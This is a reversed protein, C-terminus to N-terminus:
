DLHFVVSVRDLRVGLQVEPKSLEVTINSVFPFSQKISRATKVALTEILRTPTDFVERCIGIIEEYNVTKPLNDGEAAPIIDLDFFINLIFKQNLQQEDKYYGHKGFVELGHIKITGM